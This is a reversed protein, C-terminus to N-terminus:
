QQVEKDENIPIVVVIRQIPREIKTYPAGTYERAGDSPKINKYQVEVRRVKGDDSPFTKSVSALKWHGRFQKADQLIVVDGVEVNRQETHWKQQVLLSPFYDRTWQRWFSDTINQVLRHRQKLNTHEKFPGSPVKNSTRGLLLQNPCLYTGDQIQQTDASQDNM